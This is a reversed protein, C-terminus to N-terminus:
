PGEKLTEFAADIVPVLHATQADHLWASRTASSWARREYVYVSVGYRFVKRPGTIRLRKQERELIATFAIGHTTTLELRLTKM